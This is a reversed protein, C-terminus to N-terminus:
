PGAGHGFFQGSQGLTDFAGVCKKEHGRGADFGNGFVASCGIGLNNNIKPWLLLIAIADADRHTTVKDVIGPLNGRM